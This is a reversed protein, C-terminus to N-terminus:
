EPDLLEVLLEHMQAPDNVGSGFVGAGTWLTGDTFEVTLRPPRFFGFAPRFHSQELDVLPRRDLDRRLGVAVLSNTTLVLQGQRDFPPPSPRFRRHLWIAVATVVIAALIAVAGTRHLAVVVAVFVAVTMYIREARRTPTLTVSHLFTGEDDATPGTPETDHEAMTRWGYRAGRRATLAGNANIDHVPRPGAQLRGAGM